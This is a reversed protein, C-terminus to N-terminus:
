ENKILENKRHEIRLVTPNSFRLFKSKNPKEPESPLDDEDAYDWGDFKIIPLENYTHHDPPNSHVRDLLLEGPSIDYTNVLHDFDALGLPTSVDIGFVTAALRLLKYHYITAPASPFDYLSYKPFKLGPHNLYKKAHPPLEDVNLFNSRLADPYEESYVVTDRSLVDARDGMLSQAIPHPLAVNVALEEPISDNAFFSFLHFQQENTLVKVRLTDIIDLDQKVDPTLLFSLIDKAREIFPKEQPKRVLEKNLFKDVLSNNTDTPKPRQDEPVQSFPVKSIRGFPSDDAKRLGAGFQADFYERQTDSLSTLTEKLVSRAADKDTEYLNKIDTVLQKITDMETPTMGTDKKAKEAARVDNEASLHAKFLQYLQSMNFTDPISPKILLDDPMKTALVDVEYRKWTSTREMVHDYRAVPDSIARIERIIKDCSELLPKHTEPSIVSRIHERQESTFGKVLAQFFGIRGRGYKSYSKEVSDSFDKCQDPDTPWSDTNSYAKVRPSVDSFSRGKATYRKYHTIADKVESKPLNARVLYFDALQNTIVTSVGESELKSKKTNVFEDHQRKYLDLLNDTTLESLSFQWESSSLEAICALISPNTVAELSWSSDPRSSPELLHGFWKLAYEKSDIPHEHADVVHRGVPAHHGHSGHHDSGYRIQSLVFPQSFARTLKLM